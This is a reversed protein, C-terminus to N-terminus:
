VEGFIIEFLRKIYIESIFAFVYKLSTLIEDFSATVKPERDRQGVHVSCQGLVCRM